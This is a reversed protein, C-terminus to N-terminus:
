RPRRRRPGAPLCCKAAGAAKLAGATAEALEAYVRDSSCICALRAGSDAFAKGADASNHLEPGAIAEIGGAALFNRVWTSRASHAALDGLSALFM